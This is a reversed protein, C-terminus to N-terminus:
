LLIMTRKKKKKAVEVTELALKHKNQLIEGALEHEEYLNQELKYLRLDKNEKLPVFKAIQAAM